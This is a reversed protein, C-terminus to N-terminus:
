HINRSPYQIPFASFGPESFPLVIRPMHGVVVVYDKVIAVALNDVCCITCREECYQSSFFVFM